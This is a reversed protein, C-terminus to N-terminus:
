KDCKVRGGLAALLGARRLVALSAFFAFDRDHAIRYDYKYEDLLM